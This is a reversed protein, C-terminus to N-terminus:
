RRALPPCVPSRLMSMCAPSRRPHMPTSPRCPGRKELSPCVALHPVQVPVALLLRARDQGSRCINQPSGAPKEPGEGPGPTPPGQQVDEVILVRGGLNVKRNDVYAYESGDVLAVANKDPNFRDEGIRTLTGDENRRFRSFVLDWALQADNVAQFHGHRVMNRYVVDANDGPYVVIIESASTRIAPATKCGDLRCWFERNKVNTLPRPYKPNLAITDYVGRSQFVPVPGSNEGLSGDDSFLLGPDTPGSCCGIGALKDGLARGCQMSMLDGMSMGQMYIRGRDINYRSALDEILALVAQLDHNTKDISGSEDISWSGRRAADPYAVLFNETEALTNWATDYFQGYSNQGGAHMSLVLPVPAKGTYCSPVYELWHTQLDNVLAKSVEKLEGGFDNNQIFDLIPANDGHLEMSDPASRPFLRYKAM